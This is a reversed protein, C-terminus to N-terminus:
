KVTMGGKFEKNLCPFLTGNCLAREEDYTVVEEQLPVYAMTVTANKPLAPRKVATNEKKTIFSPNFLDEYCDDYKDM